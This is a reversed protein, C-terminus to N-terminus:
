LALYKSAILAPGSGRRSAGNTRAEVVGLDM